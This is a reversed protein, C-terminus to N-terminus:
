MFTIKTRCGPCACGSKWPKMERFLIKGCSPCRLFLCGLLAGVLCIGLAVIAVMDNNLFVAVIAILLAAFLCFWVFAIKGKSFTLIM